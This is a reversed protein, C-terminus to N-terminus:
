RGGKTGCGRPCGGFRAQETMGCTACQTCSCTATGCLVCRVEHAQKKGSAYDDFDPSWKVLGM